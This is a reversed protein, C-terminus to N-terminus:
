YPDNNKVAGTLPDVWARSGEALSVFNAVTRPTEAFDLEVSFEGMSTTFDAFIGDNARTATPAAISLCIILVHRMQFQFNLPQRFSHAKCGHM